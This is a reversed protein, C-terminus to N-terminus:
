NTMAYLAVNIGLAYGEPSFRLFFERSESEREWSDAIDTNHTMLVMIRGKEDAIMRFDAQPSDSGRESTQGGSRLWLRINTIQPITDVRYMMNRIPHDPPVDVIPYEPLVRKIESSWQRWAPTGWFDDVWLFGGKLLYERLRAAEAQSLGITGVDSGMTFPCAFLADDTLGTVWYNPDGYEDRSVPTKTLEALRVMLNHGAYPYDTAWGLGEPESFISTYMIKCVMFTGDNFEVPPFRPPVGPGEPLRGFQGGFQAFVSGAAVLVIVTAAVWRRGRPVQM